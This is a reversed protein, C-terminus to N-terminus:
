SQEPKEGADLVERVLRGLNRQATSSKFTRRPRWIQPSSMAFRPSYGSTFIVRREPFRELVHGATITGGM